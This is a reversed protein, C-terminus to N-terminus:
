SNDLKIFPYKKAISDQQTTQVLIQGNQVKVPTRLVAPHGGMQNKAQEIM